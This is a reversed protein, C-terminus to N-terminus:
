VPAGFSFTSDGLPVMNFIALIVLFLHAAVLVRAPTTKPYIDGYGVGSHTVMTYYAIDATTVTDPANFHKTFGGPIMLYLGFFMAYVLAHYLAVTRTFRALRAAAFMIAGAVGMFSVAVGVSKLNVVNSM